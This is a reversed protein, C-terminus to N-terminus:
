FGITTKTGFLIVQIILLIAAIVFLVFVIKRILLTKNKEQLGMEKTSKFFPAPKTFDFLGKKLLLYMGIAVGIQAIVEVFLPTAWANLIAVQFLGFVGVLVVLVILGKVFVDLQKQQEVQM